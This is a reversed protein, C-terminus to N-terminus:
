TVEPTRRRRLRKVTGALFADKLAPLQLTHRFHYLGLAYLATGPVSSLIFALGTPGLIFRGAMEIVGFCLTALGTILLFGHGFPSLRLAKLVQVLPLLNNVLLSAAWAIAAGTMGLRPILIINLVINVGLAASTNSLNWMSKGGMLLVVSVNGTGVGVLMVLSLIVLAPTGEVFERGFMQLIFPAFIALSLYMPWSAAVLWWTGVRYLLQSRDQDHTALAASLQPAIALRVGEIAFIGLSILRSVAAYIGAEHTSSLAGVLVVDLWLIAVQFVSALGRPAAFRWFESAISPTSATRSHGREGQHVLRAAILAAPLLILAAPLAWATVVAATGLGAAIATAIFLPRMAPKAINELAVYPLMRGFGRTIALTVSSLATLPLFAALLRLTGVGETRPLGVLPAIREAGLFLVMAALCALAGIPWLAIAVAARVDGGRGIVQYRAVTRVLGPVAGFDAVAVLISFLGVSQFFAGAGVPGLGRTVVLVVAFGLVGSALIGATTLMSGAALKQLSPREETSDSSSPNEVSGPTGGAVQDSTTSPSRSDPMEPTLPAAKDNM